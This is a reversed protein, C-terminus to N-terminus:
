AAGEVKDITPLEMWHTPGGHYSIAKLWLKELPSWSSRIVFVLEHNVYTGVIITRDKPASEIKRWQYNM